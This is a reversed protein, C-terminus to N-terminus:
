GSRNPYPESLIKGVGEDKDSDEDSVEGECDMEQYEESGVEPKEEHVKEPEEEIWGNAVVGPYQPDEHHFKAM